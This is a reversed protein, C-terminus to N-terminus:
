KSLPEPKIPTLYTKLEDTVAKVVEENQARKAHGARIGDLHKKNGYPSWRCKDYGDEWTIKVQGDVETVHAVTDCAPCILKGGRLQLHDGHCIPCVEESDGKYCDLGPDEKCVAAINQGLKYARDLKDKEIAVAGVAPVYEVLMQDVLHMQSSCHETACFNLLPMLYNSWDTGAVGITAAYKARENCKEKLQSLIKHQRNLADFLRGCATLNYCPAAFIFGDANLVHEIYCSHQDVSDPISCVTQGGNIVKSKICLECGVCPKIEFDQLRILEVECGAAEAGKLAMKLLIESNGMRRGASIGLIKM